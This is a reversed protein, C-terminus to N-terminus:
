NGDSASCSTSQRSGDESEFMLMFIDMLLKANHKILWKEMITSLEGSKKFPKAPIRYFAEESTKLPRPPLLPDVESKIQGMENDIREILAKAKKWM